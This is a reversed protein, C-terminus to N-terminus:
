KRNVQMTAQGQRIMKKSRLMTHRTVQKVM